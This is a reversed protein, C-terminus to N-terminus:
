LHRSNTGLGLRVAVLHDLRFAWTWLRTLTSWLRLLWDGTVIILLWNWTDLGVFHAM